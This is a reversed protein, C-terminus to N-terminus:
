NNLPELVQALRHDFDVTALKHLPCPKGRQILQNQNEFFPEQWHKM